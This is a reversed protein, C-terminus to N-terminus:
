RTARSAVAADRCADLLVRVQCAAEVVASRAAPSVAVMNAFGHILGSFSLVRADNGAATLARAYALGQDRLPDFGAIVLLAPPLGPLPPALLPSIRPDARDHDHAYQSLFWDVETLTLGFGDGFLEQSRYRRGSNDAGPYLLLQAVPAPEERACLGRAAVTALTAGASDGGVAVQEASAGLREANRLAWRLACCADDVAAPFPHEPALRYDVSLVHIGARRCLTRCAADHTDLDCLVYGGGHFFVLLPPKHGQDYPVYHRARLPGAAGPVVAQRVTAVRPGHGSGVAARHRFLARAQEVALRDLPPPRQRRLAALMLQTEPELTQGDIEVPAGGSMLLQAERPLASLTRAMRSELRERVTLRM